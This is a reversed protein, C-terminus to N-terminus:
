VRCLQAWFTFLCSSIEGTGVHAFGSPGRRCGVGAGLGSHLEDVGPDSQDSVTSTSTNALFKKNTQVEFPELVCFQWIFNWRHNISLDAEVNCWQQFSVQAKILSQPCLGLRCVLIGVRTRSVMKWSRLKLASFQLRLSLAGLTGSPAESPRALLM